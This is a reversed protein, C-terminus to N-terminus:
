QPTSMGLKRIILSRVSYRAPQPLSDVIDALGIEFLTPIVDNTTILDIAVTQGCIKGAVRSWSTDGQLDVDGCITKGKMETWSADYSLNVDSGNITGKVENWSGDVELNYRSTGWNGEIRGWSEDLYISYSVGLYTGTLTGDGAFGTNTIVLSLVCLRAFITPM